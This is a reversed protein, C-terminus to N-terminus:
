EYLDQNLSHAIMLIFVNQGYLSFFLLTIKVILNLNAINSKVKFAEM